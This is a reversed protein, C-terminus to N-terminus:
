DEDEDWEVAVTGNGHNVTVTAGEDELHERLQTAIKRWHHADSDSRTLACYSYDVFTIFLLLGLALLIIQVADSLM